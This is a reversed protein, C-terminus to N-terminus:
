KPLLGYTDADGNTLDHWFAQARQLLNPATTAADNYLAPMSKFRVHRTKKPEPLPPNPPALLARYADPVRKLHVQNDYETCLQRMQDGWIADLYVTAQHEAHSPLDRKHAPSPVDPQTRQRPADTLSRHRKGM